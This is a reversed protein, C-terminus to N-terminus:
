DRNDIKFEEVADNTGANLHCKLRGRRAAEVKKWVARKLFDLAAEADEDALIMELETLEEEAFGVAERTSM